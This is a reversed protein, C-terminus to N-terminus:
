GGMIGLHVGLQDLTGDWGAEMSDRGGFFVAREAESANLPSWAVRVLTGRGKGAHESFTVVSRTELPWEPAFPARTPSGEPDTFSVIFVLREPERIEEFVWRAWHSSGDPGQMCYRMLGGVRLDLSCHLLKCEKPGFWKALHAQTTWAEWVLPMPAPFVRSFVCADEGGAEGEGEVYGALNELHQRGGEAANYERVVFDRASKSPFTSRLTVRTQNGGPGLLEFTAETTFNVPEGGALGGQTYLIRGPEDLELYTIQNEYDTGDPGRMTYRWVGGAAFEHAHTTIAFGDPGWWRALKEASSWADWVLAPPACLIRRIVIQTDTPMSVIAGPEGSAQAM